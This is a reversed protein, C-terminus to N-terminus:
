RRARQAIGGERLAELEPGPAQGRDVVGLALAGVEHAGPERAQEADGREVIEIPEIEGGVAREHLGRLFRHRPEQARQAVGRDHLGEAELPEMEEVVPAVRRPHDVAEGEVLLRRAGVAHAHLRVAEVLREVDIRPRAEVEAGRGLEAREDAIELDDGRQVGPERREAGVLEAGDLHVPAILERGPGDLIEASGAVLPEPGHQVGRHLPPVRRIGPLGEGGAPAQLDEVVELGLFVRADHRHALGKAARHVEHEDPQHPVDHPVVEVALGLGDAADELVGRVRSALGVERAEGVALAALEDALEVPLVLALGRRLGEVQEDAADARGRRPERRDQAGHVGLRADLVQARQEGRAQGVDGQGVLRDRREVALVRGVREREHVAPVDRAHMRELQPEEVVQARM